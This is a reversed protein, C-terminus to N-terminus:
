SLDIVFEFLSTNFRIFSDYLKVAYIITPSHYIWSWIYREAWKVPQSSYLGYSILLMTLIIFHSHTQVINLRISSALFGSELDGNPFMAQM